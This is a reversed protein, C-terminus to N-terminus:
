KKLEECTQLRLHPVLVLLGYLGAVLYTWKAFRM